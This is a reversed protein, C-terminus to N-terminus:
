QNDQSPGPTARILGELVRVRARVSTTRAGVAELQSDLDKLTLDVLEFIPENDRQQQELAAVREALAPLGGKQSGSASPVTGVSLQLCFFAVSMSAMAAVCLSMKKLHM